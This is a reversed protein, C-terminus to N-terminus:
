KDSNGNTGEVDEFIDNLDMNIDKIQLEMKDLKKIIVDVKRELDDIRELICKYTCGSRRSGYCKIEEM